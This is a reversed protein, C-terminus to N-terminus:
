TWLDFTPKIGMLYHISINGQTMGLSQKKLLVDTNLKTFEKLNNDKIKQILEKM